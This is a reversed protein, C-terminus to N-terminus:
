KKDRFLKQILDNFSENDDLRKGIIFGIYISVAIFVTQLLGITIVLISFLLGLVIGITKGKHHIMLEEILKGLDM